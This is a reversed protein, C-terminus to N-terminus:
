VKASMASSAKQNSPSTVDTRQCRCHTEETIAFTFSSKESPYVGDCEASQHLCVFFTGFMLM